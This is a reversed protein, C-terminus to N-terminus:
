RRMSRDREEVRGCLSSWQERSIHTQPDWTRLCASGRLDEGQLHGPGGGAGGGAGRTVVPRKSPNTGGSSPFEPSVQEQPSDSLRNAVNPNTPVFGQLNQRPLNQQGFRGNQGPTQTGPTPATIRGARVGFGRSAAGRSVAGSGRAAGGVSTGGGTGGTQAHAMSAALLLLCAGAALRM